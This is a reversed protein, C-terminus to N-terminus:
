TSLEAPTPAPARVPRAETTVATNNRRAIKKAGIKVAIGPKAVAGANIKTPKRIIEETACISKLSRVSATGAYIVM